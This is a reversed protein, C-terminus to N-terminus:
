SVFIRSGQLHSSTKLRLCEKKLIYEIGSNLKFATGTVVQEFSKTPISYLDEAMASGCCDEDNKAASPKPISALGENHTAKISISYLGPDVSLDMFYVSYIGDGKIIDPYGTGLDTLVLQTTEFSGPKVISAVVEANRIPLQGQFVSAYIIVGKQVDFTGDFPVNTWTKVQISESGTSRAIVEVSLSVGDTVGSYLKARYSWIGIENNGPMHFYVLGNEYKPFVFQIGSPSTVEFLEVDEKFPSTLIMWLNRNLNEEVIFNGEILQDNQWVYDRDFTKKIQYEEIEQNLIGIFIDAMTQLLRKSKPQAVYNGGFKALQTIENCEAKFAVNYIPIFEKEVMKKVELLSNDGEASSATILVISGRKVLPKKINRAEDTLTLIKSAIKLGCEVCGTQDELLRFPIKGFLGYRNSKTVVTPDLNARASSGFTVIGVETGEPVHNFFQFLANRTTQWKEDRDMAQSMDLVLLIRNESPIRFEFEPPIFESSVDPDPSLVEFSEKNRIRDTFNTMPDDKPQSMFDPHSKM